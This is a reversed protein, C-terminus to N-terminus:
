YAILPTPGLTRGTHLTDWFYTGHIFQFLELLVLDVHVVFINKSLQSMCHKKLKDCNLLLLIIILVGPAVFFLSIKVNGCPTKSYKKM